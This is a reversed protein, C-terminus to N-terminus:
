APQSCGLGLCSGVEQRDLPSRLRQQARDLRFLPLLRFLTAVYNYPIECAVGRRRDGITAQPTGPCVPMAGSAQAGRAWCSRSASLLHRRLTSVIMARSVSAKRRGAVTQPCYTDSYEM